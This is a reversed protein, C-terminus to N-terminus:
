MDSLTLSMFCSKEKREVIYFVGPRTHSSVRWKDSSICDITAVSLLTVASAHRKNIEGTRHTHNGKELKHLREFAKDRVIKLLIHILCDIRQNQKHQLYVIKLVRHFSEAYMNTNMPTGVRYCMVWKQVHNCYTTHFYDCFSSATSKILTLFQSLLRRFTAVETEMMLVRLHHYMEVQQKSSIHKMIAGRWARDVHWACWIGQTENQGFFSIWAICFQEAMDSMFWATTIVGCQTKIANLIDMLVPTDERNCLAWGVPIGEQYDDIVMLAILYFDYENTRYTTDMCVCSKGYTRLMDRQFETQLVLLFDNMKLSPASQSPPQQQKFVLVPNYQLLEMEEVWSVVSILDNAHRRIGEINFQQKVNHIDKRSVIHERIIEVLNDRIDDLIREITIGQQLKSAIKMRTANTMRLHGLHTQHNHHTSTYYVLISKAKLDKVVKMHASCYGSVKSTGQSKVSRMGTGQPTYEGSRNCYYYWHENDGYVKPACHQVYLSHTTTEQEKGSLFSKSHISVVIKEM